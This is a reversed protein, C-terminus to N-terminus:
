TFLPLVRRDLARKNGVPSQKKFTKLSPGDTRRTPSVHLRLHTHLIPPIVSIRFALNNQSFCTGTDSQGCFIECQSVQYRFTAKRPSLCSFSRGLLHCSWNIQKTILVSHTKQATRFANVIQQM